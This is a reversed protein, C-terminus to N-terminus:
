ENVEEDIMAMAMAEGFKRRGLKFEAKIPVEHRITRKYAGNKPRPNFPIPTPGGRNRLPRVTAEGSGTARRTQSATLVEAGRPMFVLEPGQEGVLNVGGQTFTSGGALGLFGGVDGAVGGAFGLADKVPGPLISLLEEKLGSAIEKAIEKGVNAFQSAVSVVASLLKGPLTKIWGWIASAGKAIGQAIFKAMSWGISALKPLLSTLIGIVKIGFQVFYIPAKIPFLAVFIIAKVILGRILGPLAHLADMARHPLLRFFHIVNKVANVVWGFHQVLLVIGGILQPLPGLLLLIWPNAKIFSVLTDVANRFWEVKTYLLIFGVVLAATATIVIGVPNLALFMLATGLASVATILSGIIWVLPGIMATVGLGVVIFTQVEPPLASFANAAWEINGAVMEIAPAMALGAVLAATELSGKMREIAGPLGKMQANAMKEASGRKETALIYRKLGAPGERYVINAARQADSGFLTQLYAGRQEDSYGRLAVGLRKAITTLGVMKGHQDFFSLNLEDMLEKQKKQTPNLRMMFTKFSTGADSAQIGNQAFAALAGVTEQVSMGYMAASQGGQALSQALGQVSASSAIAGGALADSVVRSENAPIKFTNMAAGVIEATRGLALGETAALQMTTALAGARVEAPNIGTKVLELMAEASENASFITEAGMKLALKEMSEMGNGGVNGAVKVQAMSREFEAATHVAYAGAAVIPLTLHTSLSRGTTRMGKGVQKMKELAGVGKKGSSSMMDIGVAGAKAQAGARQAAAGYETTVATNRQMSRQYEAAGRLRMMVEIQEANM